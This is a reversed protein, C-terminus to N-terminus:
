LVSIGSPFEVSAIACHGVQAHLSLYRGLDTAPFIVQGLHPSIKRTGGAVIALLEGGGNLCGSDHYTFDTSLRSNPGNEM